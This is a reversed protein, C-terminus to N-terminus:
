VAPEEAPEPAEFNAFQIKDGVKVEADPFRAKLAEVAADDKLEWAKGLKTVEVDNGDISVKGGEAVSGEVVPTRTQDREAVAAARADAEAAKEAETKEVKPMASKPANASYVYVTEEGVTLRDDHDSAKKPTFANGIGVIPAKGVDGGFDYEDGIKLKAADAAKVPTRDKMAQAHDAATTEALKAILADEQGAPLLYSNPGKAEAGAEKLAERSTTAYGAIRAFTRGAFDGDDKGNFTSFFKNESMINM